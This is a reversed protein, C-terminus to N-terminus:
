KIVALKFTGSSKQSSGGVSLVGYYVGNAVPQGNRNKGDWQIYYCSSPSIPGADLERVLRGSVTYIRIVGGGSVGAPIEYKIFTGGTTITGSGGSCSSSASLTVSKPQLNFPNPFNFIRVTTGTYSGGGVQSPRMVAFSGTVVTSAATRANPRFGRGDSVAMLGQNAAQVAKADAAGVGTHRVSLVSALPKLGKVSITGKVPDITQLGPVMTWKQTTADFSYGALDSLDSGDQTYSLTLDVGKTTYNLSSLTVDYVGSVFSGSPALSSQSSAAADTEKMCMSPVSTSAIPIVGGVPLTLGSSNGGAGNSIDLPLLNNPLGQANVGTDDGILAADINQCVAHPLDLGFPVEKVVLPAGPDNPQAEIHLTYVTGSTLSATPYELFLQNNGDADAKEVFSSDSLPTSTALVFPSAGIWANGGSFQKFNTIQFEYNAGAPHGFVNVDLPKPKLAFDFDVAGGVPVETSQNLVYYGPANVFVKFQHYSTTGAILSASLGNIKYAGSSDTVARYLALSATPDAANLTDDFALVPIGELVTKGFASCTVGAPCIPNNTYVTGSLSANAASLSFAPVTIGSTGSVNVLQAGPAYGAATAQINYTGAALGSLSWYGSASATLTTADYGSAKVTVQAGALAVAGTSQVIGSIGIGPNSDLNADVTTTSNVAGLTASTKYPPYNPTTVVLNYSKGATLGRIEYGLAGFGGAGTLTQFKSFDGAGVSQNLQKDLNNTINPPYPTVLGAGKLTGSSDYAWVIPLYKLFNDFKGALQSFQNQNIMNVATVTGSLTAQLIGSLNSAPTLTVNQVATTSGQPGGLPSFAAGLALKPGVVINKTSNEIVFYPRTGGALNGQDFGGKRMLYFDFASGTKAAAVSNTCFGPSTLFQGSCNFVQGTSLSYSFLGPTNDGGGGALLPSVIPSSLPTGQPLAYVQWNEPPCDGGGGGCNAYISLAPLSSVNVIPRVTVADALSVDQNVTQNASVTLHPAPAKTTFAFDSVGNARANLTYDGPLLGGISFSGDANLQGFGWSNNGEANVSPTGGVSTPPTYISGDPKRMFGTVRGAPFFQMNVVASSSQALNPQTQNGGPFVAGWYNSVVQMWYARGSSVAISYNIVPGTSASSFSTFGGGNCPENGSGSCQPYLLISVPSTSLDVVSPFKLVGQVIGSGGTSINVTVTVSSIGDYIANGGVDFVSSTTTYVTLRRDDNGEGPHQSDCPGFSQQNQQRSPENLSVQGYPTWVNLNYNGPPLKDLLFYGTASTQANLQRFGPNSAYSPGPPPSPPPQPCAPQLPDTQWPRGDPFLGIGAQPFSNGFQDKVYIRLSGVGPAMQNLGITPRLVNASSIYLFDNIGPAAGFGTAAATSQSGRYCVDNSICGGFINAYYTSGPNLDYLQFVGNQDTQTGRWDNSTQSYQDQHSSNFNLQLYPIPASTASDVVLGYVSLSGGQGSSQAQGINAIPAKADAFDLPSIIILSSNASLATNIPASASRKRNPDFASIQYTGANAYAVNIFQLEGAGSGDLSAMGFASAGGGTKLGLQGFILAGPTGNVVIGDIEGVNSVGISSIVVTVAPTSVNVPAAATLSPHNSNFQGVFSPLFGQSSAFIQYVRGATLAGNVNADFALSGNADTRGIASVAPDPGGNNFSIAAVNAGAIPAGASNRVYVILNSRPHAPSALVALFLSFGLFRRM